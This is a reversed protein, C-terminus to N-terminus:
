YYFIFFFRDYVIQMSISHQIFINPIINNLQDVIWLLIDSVPRRFCLYDIYYFLSIFLFYDKVGGLQNAQLLEQVSVPLCLAQYISYAKQSFSGDTESFLCSYFEKVFFVFLMFEFYVLQRNWVKRFSQPTNSAYHNALSCFDDLDDMALNGPAKSLFDLGFLFHFFNLGFFEKVLLKM